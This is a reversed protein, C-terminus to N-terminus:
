LNTEVLRLFFRVIEPDFLQGSERRIYDVAQEFPWAARYPRDSTIADWVDVVTFIRAALPIDEGVIGGPYGTGNWKEHHRYPIALAGKFSPITSLLNHAIVPHLRIIEWEKETLPGKKLLIQTPIGMKGVDHLIAGLYINALENQSIGILWALQLTMRSVRQTHGNFERDLLDLSDLAQDFQTENAPNLSDTERLYRLFIEATWLRSKAPRYTLSPFNLTGQDLSFTM